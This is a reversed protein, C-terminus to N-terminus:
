TSRARRIGLFAPDVEDIPSIEPRRVVAHVREILGSARVNSANRISIADLDRLGAPLPTDDLTALVLRDSSWAQIAQRVEREVWASRAAAQSWLIVV